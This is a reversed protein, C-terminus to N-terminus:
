KFYFIYVMSYFGFLGLAINMSANLYIDFIRVISESKPNKDIFYYIYGWDFLFYLIDYLLYALLVTTIFKNTQRGMYILLGLIFIISIVSLSDRLKVLYKWVGTPPPLYDPYEVDIILELIKKLFLFTILLILLFYIIKGKM